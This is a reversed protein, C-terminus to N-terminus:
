TAAQGSLVFFFMGGSAVNQLWDLGIRVSPDNSIVPTGEDSRKKRKKDGEPHPLRKVNNIIPILDYNRGCSVCMVDTGEPPYMSLPYGCDDIPCYLHDWKRIPAVAAM